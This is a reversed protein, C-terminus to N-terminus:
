QQDPLTHAARAKQIIQTAEPNPREDCVFSLSGDANRVARTVNIKPAVVQRTVPKNTATTNPTATADAALADTGLALLCLLAFPTRM